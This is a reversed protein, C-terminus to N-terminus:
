QKNSVDDDISVITLRIAAPPAPDRDRSDPAILMPPIV